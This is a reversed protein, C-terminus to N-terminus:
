IVFLIHFVVATMKVFLSVLKELTGVYYQFFLVGVQFELLKNTAVEM